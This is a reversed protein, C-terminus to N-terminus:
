QENTLQLCEYAWHDASGCNYCHSDGCNNIKKAREGGSGRTTTSVDGGGVGADAGGSTPAKGRGSTGGRGRHGQGRQGGQQIFALGAEPGNGRFPINPRTTQYNGLVRLAKDFSDPYQDAGLLYNNALKNKLKGYRRKEVGSILLAAKVSENAEEEAAKRKNATINAPNAVQGPEKLLGAVLGKHIGPSGSFAEVMDWLNRFNRGYEEVTDKEGQTFLFLMKLAQVLNFVEQKHDDFRVCIHEIKQILKHLSQNKQTRERDDTAELKNRVEQSCQDYVTGYGKKLSDQLKLRRKAITKVEKARIITLNAADPANTDVADPLAITQERGSRVTKAVLYGESASTRQLYNALSKCSQTFQAAFKNQDMNFTDQAIESIASKCGKTM